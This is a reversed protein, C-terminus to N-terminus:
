NNVVKRSNPRRNVAMRALAQSSEFSTYNLMDAEVLFINKKYKRGIELLFMHIIVVTVIHVM